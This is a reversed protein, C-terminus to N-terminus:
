KANKKEIIYETKYGHFTRLTAKRETVRNPSESNM